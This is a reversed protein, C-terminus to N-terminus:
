ATFKGFFPGHRGCMNIGYVSLLGFSQEPGKLAGSYLLGPLVTFGDIVSSDRVESKRLFHFDNISFTVFM